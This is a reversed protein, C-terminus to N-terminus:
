FLREKLSKKQCLSQKNNKFDITVSYESTSLPNKVEFCYRDFDYIGKNITEVATLKM